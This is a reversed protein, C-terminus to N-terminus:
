NERRARWIRAWHSFAAQQVQGPLENLFIESPPQGPLFRKRLGFRRREVRPPMDPFLLEVFERYLEATEWPSLQELEFLAFRPMFRELEAQTPIRGSYTRGRWTFSPADRADSPSAM